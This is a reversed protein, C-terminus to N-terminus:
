RQAVPPAYHLTKAAKPAPTVAAHEARARRRDNAAIVARGALGLGVGLAIPAASAIWGTDMM